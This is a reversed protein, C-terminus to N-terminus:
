PQLHLASPPPLYTYLLHHSCCTHPLHPLCITYPPLRLPPLTVSSTHRLPPLCHHLASPRVSSTYRLLHSSSTHRLHHLASSIYTSKLAHPKLTHWKNVFITM